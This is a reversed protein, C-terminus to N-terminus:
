AKADKTGNAAADAAAAETKSESEEGGSGEVIKKVAALTGAPGGTEAILVKGKKDVAFVGRVASDKGPKKLGIADLLTAKPDCLLPYPLKQKEKFSTNAKASDSSM